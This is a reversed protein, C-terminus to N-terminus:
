LGLLGRYAGAMARAQVSRSFLPARARGRRSLDERLAEDRALRVVARGIAMRDAPDVTFAAFGYPHEADRNAEWVAEEKAYISTGGSYAMLVKATGDQFFSQYSTGSVGGGGLIMHVTGMSTDINDKESSVPNSLFHGSPPGGRSQIYESM